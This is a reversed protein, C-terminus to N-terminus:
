VTGIGHVVERHYRWFHCRVTARSLPCPPFGCATLSNGYGYSEMRILPIFQIFYSLGIARNLTFAM